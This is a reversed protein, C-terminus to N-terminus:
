QLNGWREVAPEAAAWKWQNDQRCVNATFWSRAPTREAGHDVSFLIEKCQVLATTMERVVRVEGRQTGLGLPQSSQWPQIDGARLQGAIAAIQDQEAQQMRRGVYRSATDTATKVGIGVGIGVAANTTAAGTAIGAVAGAVSGITNCAALAGALLLTAALRQLRIGYGTVAATGLARHGARGIGM